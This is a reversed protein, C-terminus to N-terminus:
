KDGFGNVGVFTYRREYGFDRMIQSIRTHHVGYEKAVDVVKAGKRIKQVIDRREKLGIHVPDQSPFKVIKEAM